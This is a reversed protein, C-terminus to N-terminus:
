GGAAEPTPAPAVPLEAARPERRVSLGKLSSLVMPAALLGITLLAVAMGGVAWRPGVVSTALGAIMTGLPVTGRQLQLTSLVRGRYEPAVNM